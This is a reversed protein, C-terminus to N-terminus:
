ILMGNNRDARKRSKSGGQEPEKKDGDGNGNKNAGVDDSAKKNRRNKNGKKNKRGDDSVKKNGDNTEKAKKTDGDDTV